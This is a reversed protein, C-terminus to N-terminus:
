YGRNLIEKLPKNYDFTQAIDSEFPIAYNEAEMLAKLSAYLRSEQGKTNTWYRVKGDDGIDAHITINAWYYHVTACILYKAFQELTLQREQIM